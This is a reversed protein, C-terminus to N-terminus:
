LFMVNKQCKDTPSLSMNQLKLSFRRFQESPTYFLIKSPTNTNKSGRCETKVRPWQGEAGQGKAGM